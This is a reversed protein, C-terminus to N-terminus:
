RAPAMPLGKMLLGRVAECQSQELECLMALKVVAQSNEIIPKYRAAVSTKGNSNIFLWFEQGTAGDVQVIRHVFPYVPPRVINKDSESTANNALDVSDFGIAGDDPVYRPNGHSKPWDLPKQKVDAPENQGEFSIVRAYWGGEAKARQEESLVMAKSSSIAMDNISQFRSRKQLKAELVRGCEDFRVAVIVEGKFKARIADPPMYVGPNLPKPCIAAETQLAFAGCPAMALMVIFLLVRNM